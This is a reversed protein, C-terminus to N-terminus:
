VMFEDSYQRPKLIRPHEIKVDDFDKDGTIFIDVKSEIAAALVPIDKIDRMPPYKKKDISKLEFVEDPLSKLLLNLELFMYPYEEIFKTEAESITYKSIILTHNDIIHEVIKAVISNPKYLASYLVNADIM